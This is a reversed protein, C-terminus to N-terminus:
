RANSLRGQITRAEGIGEAGAPQEPLALQRLVRRAHFPKLSFETTRAVALARGATRFRGVPRQRRRAARFALASGLPMYPRSAASRCTTLNVSLTDPAAIPTQLPLLAVQGSGLQNSPRVALVGRVGPPVVVVALEVLGREAEIRLDVAEALAVRSRVFVTPNAHGTEVIESVAERPDHCAIGSKRM